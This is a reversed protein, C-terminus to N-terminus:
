SAASGLPRAIGAREVLEEAIALSSTAAPSPANRVWTIPGTLGLRFDDVLAGDRDLVQARIGCPGFSVDSGDLEPLYRRMEKVAARKVVDRWIEAAGTRWYRRSLKWLGPFGLLAAADKPNARLRGYGERALSPVANPGAWVEGDIRRTFHVGLFPFSPDPVPYVLGRVLAAARPALVFYDGRFPAIRHESRALRDSQLGACAVVREAAVDEVREVEHGLRLEAGRARVDDALARLVRRYDIVGSEPVYLARVGRVHPEIERLEDQDVERM